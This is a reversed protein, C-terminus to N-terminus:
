QIIFDVRGIRDRKHHHHHALKHALHATAKAALEVATWFEHWAHDLWHPM